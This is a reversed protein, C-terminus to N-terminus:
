LLMGLGMTIVSRRPPTLRYTYDFRFFGLIRSIGAGIEGYLGNTPHIDPPASHAYKWSQAVTGFILFEISNRYLYPINLWLFPVNRFNQELNLVFFADGSFEKIGIGRLTGPPAYGLLPSDLYFYRQPPLTGFSIGSLANVTLSPPFLLSRLFTPIHYEGRAMVQAYDFASHLRPSTYLVAISAYKRPLIPIPPAEEGYLMDLALGRMTGQIIPPNSEFTRAQSFLSYNTNRLASTQHESQLAFNIKLRDIPRAEFSLAVGKTYYYDFYDIKYLLTAFLNEADDHADGTLFHQVSQYAQLGVSYDHAGDLFFELNLRAKPRRDAFGYGAMAAIALKTTVSDIRGKVGVYLGEARNYRLQPSVPAADILDSLGVLPGSPRFQKELTQTSDLKQYAIKEEATLPLVDHQAWFTSDYHESEKLVLRRPRGFISDPISSNIKCDYISSTSEFGIGPLSIGAIGVKFFGKIRIDVPMWFENDFLSFQQAYSLKVDSVFPLVFAENPEVDIGAVAYSGEAISVTGRFLPVLRSKPILKIDYIDSGVRHRIRELKFDYYDFANMATPGVFRFGSLRIEDDYFNLIGGVGAFNQTGKINETQRKQKIVERLTDGKQWYCTSYSESIVAIATDRRITQRTFAELQYSHLKEIWKKKNEIVKRMIGMAPDEGTVVVEALQIPSPELRLDYQADQTLHFRTSDTKYGVFSFAVLYDGRPLTLRYNGQSNSITGKTTGLVRITAAVLPQGSQSDRIVGSIKCTQASAPAGGGASLALIALLLTKIKINM